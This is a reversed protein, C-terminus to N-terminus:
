QTTLQNVKEIILSSRQAIFGEYDNSEIANLAEDNIFHSELVSMFKDELNEKITAFYDSPSRDLIERNDGLNLM